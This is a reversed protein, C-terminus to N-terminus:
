VGRRRQLAPEMGTRSSLGRRPDGRSGIRGSASLCTSAPVHRVGIMNDASFATGESCIRGAPNLAAPPRTTPVLPQAPDLALDTAQLPHHFLVDVAAFDQGLDGRHGIEPAPQADRQNEENRQAIQRDQERQKGTVPERAPRPYPLGRSPWRTRFTVARVQCASPGRPGVRRNGADALSARSVPRHSVWTGAARHVERIGGISRAHVQRPSGPTGTPREGPDWRSLRCRLKTRDTM